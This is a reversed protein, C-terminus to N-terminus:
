REKRDTKAPGKAGRAPKKPTAVLSWDPVLRARDVVAFPLRIDGTDEAVLATEADVSLLKGTVRRKGAVPSRLKVQVGEGVYAAWQAPRFLLRDMGPSSVELTYSDKILEHVEIFDAVQASVAECDDVTIGEPHDIYLRLLQSQGSRGREIGWLDFGLGTVTPELRQTIHDADLMKEM